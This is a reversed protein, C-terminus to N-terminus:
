NRKRNNRKQLDNEKDNVQKKWKKIMKEFKQQPTLKKREFRCLNAISIHIHNSIDELTLDRQKRWVTYFFDNNEM